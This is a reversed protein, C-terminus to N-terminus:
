RNGPSCKVGADQFHTCSNNGDSSAGCNTLFKENGVCGVNDLWIRGTGPGFHLAQVGTLQIKLM